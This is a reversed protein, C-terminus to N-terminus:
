AGVRAVQRQRDWILTQHTRALLKIAESLDSDGAVERSMTRIRACWTRWRGRDLSETHGGRHAADHRCLDRKWDIFGQGRIM